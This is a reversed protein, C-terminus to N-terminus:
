FCRPHDYTYAYASLIGWFHSLAGLVVCIHFIQHSAGFIDFKVPSWREPFHIQADKDANRGGVLYRGNLRLAVLPRLSVGYVLAGFLIFVGELYYWQVGMHKVLQDYPFMAMAHFVPGFGSLGTIIFTWLRFLRYDQSQFRPHLM